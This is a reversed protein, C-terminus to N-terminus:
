QSGDRPWAKRYRVADLLAFRELMSRPSDNLLSSSLSDIECAYGARETEALKAGDPNDDDISGHGVGVVYRFMQKPVCGRASELGGLLSGLERAGAFAEFQEIDSYKIPAYLAGSDDITNGNLDRARVRGVTDFNEMGFGLPNIYEAHCNTCPPDETLRQYKMRNTTTPQRLYEAHEALKEERAEFTGAPPDPQDQCLMRRRVRVSRLIPSTEVAEGWRAMFAGGALIGGRDTTPVKRLEDGSVGAIGYHNALTENLFSYDAAYLSAFQESPDLMIHSFTANIEAQMHPVLAAFGPWVEPDKDARDLEATGLWAGVFDSMVGDAGAALRNAHSAIRAPDRLEDRAAAALLPEDPTSGTFTYALFTAMEYSSLEFADADIDPNDPNPEGLEHRYLFPPASLLGELALRIGAKVDDDTQSGDAIALWTAREAGNLPRRFIRPALEDVFQVACAQDFAACNLAPAFERAAAWDAIEAAVLLYNSYAPPTVAHRTNNAFLGLKADESLGASADFDIGLLDEVSNQYEGRTLIKLQRAGYAIPTQARDCVVDAVWLTQIYAAVDEACQRDCAAPDGRPMTQEITAIMTAVDRETNLAPFGDGGEGEAGHCGACQQDYIENGRVIPNGATVTITAIPSPDSPLSDNLAIVKYDFEGTDPLGESLMTSDSPLEATTGWRGAAPRRRVLFLTENDSADLWNLEATATDADFYGNLHQPAAPRAPMALPGTAEGAADFHLHFYVPVSEGISSLSAVARLAEIGADMDFGAASVHVPAITSVRLETSSLRAILVQAPVSQRVGHLGLELPLTATTTEGPALAEVATLDVQTRVWATPLFETEFLLSRLRSNRIDIGTHVDNLDISLRAEGDSGITGALAPTEGESAVFGNNEATHEKKISVYALSSRAGALQWRVAPPPADGCIGGNVAVDRDAPVGAKDALYGFTYSAGTDITPRWNPPTARCNGASCSYTANWGDRFSSGDSWSWSLDWDSIPEGHNTITVEAKYGDPWEDVVAHTCEAARALSATGLLLLAILPRNM